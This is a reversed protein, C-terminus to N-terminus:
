VKSSIPTRVAAMTLTKIHWIFLAATLLLVTANWGTAGGIGFAHPAAAPWRELGAAEIVKQTWAYWRVYEILVWMLGSASVYFASAKRSWLCVTSIILSAAIGLHMWTFTSDILPASGAEFMKHIQYMERGFSWMQLIAAVAATFRAFYIDSPPLSNLHATLKM